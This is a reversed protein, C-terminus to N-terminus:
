GRERQRQDLKLQLLRFKPCSATTATEGNQKYFAACCEYLADVLHECKTQNFNNKELCNQIACARPHCPPKSALDEQIGM